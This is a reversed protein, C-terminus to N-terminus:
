PRFSGWVCKIGFESLIRCTQHLFSEGGGMPYGLHSLILYVPIVKDMGKLIESLTEETHREHLAFVYDPAIWALRLLLTFSENPLILRISNKQRKSHNFEQSYNETKNQRVAGILKYIEGPNYLERNNCLANAEYLKIRSIFKKHFIETM